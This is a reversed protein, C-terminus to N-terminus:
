ARIFNLHQILGAGCQQLSDLDKSVKAASLCGELTAVILVSMQHCNIEKSVFGDEQGQVLLTQMFEIWQEYILNLKVRFEEDIPALEQALNNLPCGLQIDNLTFSEGSGQILTILGDIPNKFAALPSVFGQLVQEAIIEDIVAHGLESKNKFHHYLAGKTVGARELIQALSGTQFGNLHMEKYAAILIRERTSMNDVDDNLDRWWFNDELSKM